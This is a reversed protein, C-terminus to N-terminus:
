TFNMKKKLRFFQYGTMAPYCSLDPVSLTDFVTRCYKTNSFELNIGSVDVAAEQIIKFEGDNL